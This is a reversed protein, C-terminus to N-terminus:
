LLNPPDLSIKIDKLDLSNLLTLLSTRKKSKIIIQWTYGSTSREHFAPAPASIDLSSSLPSASLSKKLARIKRLVTPETKSTISLKLLYSFPPFNTKKRKKLSYNYFSEYDATLAFNIIDSDPKYTQVIVSATSLHGRGVRGVVQTLLEFTKEEASFDPLSLGSDAQVVGVSALRPLDLGKALTQTGILIDIEGNKVESYLAELSNSKNNDADFRAIKAAPFLKKLETELLKTGFGKHIISPCRCNPCSTPIKEAFGCSHCILSYSDSHLTLPLFCNPCLAEWGCDECITMPASGRRNHFILTQEKNELNKKIESLLANSFYRNKSFAERSKLDVIKIEPRVSSSKAKVKLPVVSNKASALYFDSVLPTATGLICPIKLTKSIFSALRVGSYKPPNEQFYASEHAEDIIILGLNKLPSFLASRPGIIIKPCSSDKASDLLLNEWIQHRSSETLKSHILVIEAQSAFTKEFIEVLQSTLAIEPVLLIVSEAKELAKRTLELYINTKGSGTVGFLLRTPTKLAELSSLASLQHTSLPVIAEKESPRPECDSSFFNNNRKKRRNKEIGVPLFLSAASPLPAFYFSSLWLLSKLLYDPLPTKYLLKLVERTKFAPKPVKKLVIGPCSTKGLPVLVINGPVLPLNSSYTLSSAGMRFIKTPIVEYYM